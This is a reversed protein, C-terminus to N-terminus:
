NEKIFIEFSSLASGCIITRGCFLRLLGSKPLCDISWPIPKITHPISGSWRGYGGIGNIHLVDSCGSLKCLPKSDEVAIFDLLAYGSDHMGEINYYYPEPLKLLKAIQTRIAHKYMASQKIKTPLMILSTCEIPESWNARNPIKNFDNLTMNNVNM